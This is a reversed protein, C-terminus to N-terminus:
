RVRMEWIVIEGFEIEIKSKIATSQPPYVWGLLHMDIAGMELLPPIPPTARM